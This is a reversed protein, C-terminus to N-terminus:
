FRISLRGSVGHATMGSGFDGNYSIAVSVDDSAQFDLGTRVTAANKAIPTGAILFSGTTDPLTMTAFPTTDHFAHRWGLGGFAKARMDGLRFGTSGRMGLTTFFTEMSQSKVTLATAGGNTAVSKEAFDDLDLRVYAVNAYPEITVNGARYQWALEGFSQFTNGKYDAKFHDSFGPFAAIRDTSVDHWTYSLGARLSLSDWQTGGYVGLHINDSKGDSQQRRVNFDDHSYGAFVGLRANSGVAGDLGLLLGDTSNRVRASDGDRGLRSWNGLGQGWIALGSKASKDRVYDSFDYNLAAVETPEATDPTERLRDFAAERLSQGQSILTSQASAHVSGSLSDFAARGEAADLM